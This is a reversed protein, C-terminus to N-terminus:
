MGELIEAQVRLIEDAVSEVEAIAASVAADVYSTMGALSPYMSTNGKNKDTVASTKNSTKEATATTTTIRDANSINIRSVTVLGNNESTSSFVIQTAGVVNPHYAKDGFVLVAFANTNMLLNYLYQYTCALEGDYIVNGRMELLHKDMKGDVSDKAENAVVLADGAMDVADTIRGDFSQVLASLIAVQRTAEDAKQKADAVDGAMPLVTESLEMVMTKIKGLEDETLRMDDVLGNVYRVLKCIAEYYSLSDDFVLPLVKHCWFMFPSLVRRNMDTVM